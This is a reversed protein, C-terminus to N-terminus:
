SNSRITGVMWTPPFLCCQWTYISQSPTFISSWFVWRREGKLSTHEMDPITYKLLDPKYYPWLIGTYVSYNGTIWPNLNVWVNRHSIGKCIGTSLAKGLHSPSPIRLLMGCWDMAFTLAITTERSKWLKVINLTKVPTEPSVYPSVPGIPQDSLHILARSLM